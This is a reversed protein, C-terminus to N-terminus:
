KKFRRRLLGVGALGAGLLLFTSPEPIPSQVFSLGSLNDFGILGILTAQGNSPNITYLSDNLEAFLVGDSRFALGALFDLDSIGPDGIFTTAGTTQDITYLINSTQAIGYLVDSPSFDLGDMSPDLGGLSTIQTSSPVTIDFSWLTDQGSQSMFGIGDSRFALGGEGVAAVGIDISNITDATSPDLELIEDSFQDYTYLKGSRTGLGFSDMPTDLNGVLIGSGTSTDITILQEDFTIGYLIEAAEGRVPILFLVLFCLLVLSRFTKM